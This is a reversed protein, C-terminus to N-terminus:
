SVQNITLETELPVSITFITGKGQVSQLKITGHLDHIHARVLSLGIGRGAYAGESDSTSFGPMFLVHTLYNKNVKSANNILRREEARKRISDFDLGRGDDKLIIHLNDNELEISLAIIGVESKGQAIREDPSEIGHYVANRILQILTEKIERRPINKLALPEVEMQLQVKKQLERAIKECAQKLSEALMSETNFQSRSGGAANFLSLKEIITNLKDQEQFIKEINVTIRLMNKFDITDMQRLQKLESELEHLKYGFDELGLIFADSKVAHIHQYIEVIADHSKINQDRLITTIQNFNYAVDSIFDRLVLPEVQIIEFLSRMEGEQKRQEEELKKQLRKERSIDEITALIFIEENGRDISAFECRLIKEKNSGASVYTLESLPNMNELKKPSVTRNIMMSFYDRVGEMDKATFSSSLLSVFDKGALEDAMLIDELAASYQPQIIFDKDMLFIGAKLNDQMITITDRQSQLDAMIKHLNDRTKIMARQMDGLEDKRFKTINFTFDANSLAEAIVKFNIIPATVYDALIIAAVAAATISIFLILIAQMRLLNVQSIDMAAVLIGVVDDNRIIPLFASIYTGNKDTYPAKPILLKKSEYAMEFYVPVDRAYYTSLTDEYSSNPTQESSFINQFTNYYKRVYFVSALDFAEVIDNMKSTLEWFDSTRAVGEGILYYTAQLIPYQKAIMTVVQELTTKYSREIYNTYPIFMLLSIAVGLAIFIIFFKVKLSM